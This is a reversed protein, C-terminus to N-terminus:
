REAIVEVAKELMAYTYPYGMSTFGIVGERGNFLHLFTLADEIGENGIIELAARRKSERVTLHEGYHYGNRRVKSMLGIFTPDNTAM